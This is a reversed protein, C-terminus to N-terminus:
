ANSFRVEKDNPIDILRELERCENAIQDLVTRIEEVVALYEEACNRLKEELEPDLGQVQQTDHVDHWSIVTAQGSDTLHRRLLFCDAEFTARQFKIRQQLRAMEASFNQWRQFPRLIDKYHEATSVLLPILSLVLGAEGIGSM